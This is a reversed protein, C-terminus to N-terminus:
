QEYLKLIFHFDAIVKYNTDYPGYKNYLEASLLMTEHRLPNRMRTAPDFGIEATTYLCKGNADVYNALASVVGANTEMAAKILLEVCDPEYWDDSNLLLIYEGRALALGKNMADYLGSDKQSLIYDITSSEYKKAKNVTGDRSGGDIIIYEINTYTQSRVSEICQEITSNSNLCVTIISVLPFEKTTQYSINHLRRGGEYYVPSARNERFRQYVGCVRRDKM